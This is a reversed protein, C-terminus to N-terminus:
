RAPLLQGYLKVDAPLASRYKQLFGILGGYHDFHCHSVVMANIKSPDAGTLEINNLLAEPTYGFDLM